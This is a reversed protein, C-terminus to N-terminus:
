RLHPADGLDCARADRRPAPSGPHCPPGGGPPPTPHYVAPPLIEEVVAWKFVRKVRGVHQNIVGHCLGQDILTQRLAKLKLPSFEAAPLTGYLKRLPRLSLRYNDPERTPEGDPGRYHQEAHRWFALIVEEVSPGTGVTANITGLTGNRPSLRHGALWESILRDYTAQAEDTGYRGLYHDKGALRVVALNTAKHHCLSPVRRPPM